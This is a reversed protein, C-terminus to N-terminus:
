FGPDEEAFLAAEPLPVSCITGGLGVRKNVPSGLLIEIFIDLRLGARM